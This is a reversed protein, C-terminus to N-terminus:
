IEWSRCLRIRDKGSSLLKNSKTPLLILVKDGVRLQRARTKRNYYKRQKRQAKEIQQHATKCTEELKERLDIVYQYTSKVEEDPIDKTWLEKLIKMPGRVQHGYLLEFPSFGLSDQSVERYAFLLANLYKDWDKPKETCMRKLMQKLTGNFKEVLGNCMPHYPTTTIRKMSLLRSVEKMVDSTFQSGQDSLMERPVGVRSFVDVLAEAVRETEIGSLAVAEPYRTAYYIITLIYKNGRTTRPELPGVIDVAIRQFPESIVPMHGLPVSTVRGKPITRQCVDCSSVFRRIDAQVGPWYFEATVRDVSKKVGLHGAMLTEHALKMVPPRYKKPVILQRFTKGNSIKPSSFKRYLMENQVYINTKGGDSYSKISKKEAM